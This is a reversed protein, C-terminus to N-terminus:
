ANHLTAETTTIDMRCGHDTHLTLDIRVTRAQPDVPIDFTGGDHIAAPTAAGGYPPSTLAVSSVPRCTPATPDHDDIALTLRLADRAEGPSVRLTLTLPAGDVLDPAKSTIKGTADIEGHTAVDRFALWAGVTALVSVLSLTAVIRADRPRQVLVRAAATGLAVAVLAGWLVYQSAPGDPWATGTVVLAACALLLPLWRASPHQLAWRIVVNRINGAAISHDGTATAENHLHEPEPRPPRRPTM